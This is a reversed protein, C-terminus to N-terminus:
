QYRARSLGTLSISGSNVRGRYELFRKKVPRLGHLTKEQNQTRDAKCGSL